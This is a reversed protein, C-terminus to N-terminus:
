EANQQLLAKKEFREPNPNIDEESDRGFDELSLKIKKKHTEKLTFCHLFGLFAVIGLAIMPDFDNNVCLTTLYPAATSGTNNQKNKKL